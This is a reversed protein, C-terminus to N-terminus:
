KRYLFSGKKEGCLPGGVLSIRGFANEMYISVNRQLVPEYRTHISVYFISTVVRTLCLIHFHIEPAGQAAESTSFLAFSFLVVQTSNGPIQWADM